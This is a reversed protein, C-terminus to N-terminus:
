LGRHPIAISGGKPLDVSPFAEIFPIGDRLAYCYYTGPGLVWKGGGTDFFWVQNVPPTFRMSAAAIPVRKYGKAKVEEGASLFANEKFLGYEWKGPMKHTLIKDNM